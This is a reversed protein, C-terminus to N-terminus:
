AAERWTTQDTEESEQRRDPHDPLTQDPQEEMTAWIAVAWTVLMLVVLIIVPFM